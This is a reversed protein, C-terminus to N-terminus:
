LKGELAALLPVEIRRSDVSASSTRLFAHVAGNKRSGGSGTNVGVRPQYVSVSRSALRDNRPLSSRHMRSMSNVSYFGVVYTAFAKAALDVIFLAALRDKQRVREPGSSLQLRCCVGARV